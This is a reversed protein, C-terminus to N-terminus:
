RSGARARKIAVVAGSGAVVAGIGALALLLSASPWQGGSAPGMGTAPVSVPQSTAALYPPIAGCVIPVKDADTAPSAGTHSVIKNEGSAVTAFAVDIQTVSTGHGSADAVVNQLDALHSGLESANDSCAVGMHVHTMHSTGPALGSLTVTVETRHGSDLSKVVATGSVGSDNLATLVVDVSGELLVAPAPIDAPMHMHDMAMTAEATPSGEEEHGVNELEQDKALDDATPQTQVYFSFAGMAEDGDESSVNSWEVVYRGASLNAKLPVTVKTGDAPDKAAAGDTVSAGGADTVEVSLNQAQVTEAFTISVETPATQVVAGKAPVSDEYHAHAFVNTAVMTACLVAAVMIM